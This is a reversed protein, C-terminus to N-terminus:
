SGKGTTKGKHAHLQIIKEIGGIETSRDEVKRTVFTVELSNMCVEEERVEGLM